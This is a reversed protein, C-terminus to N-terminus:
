SRVTARVSPRGSSARSGSSGPASTPQSPAPEAEPESPPAAPSGGLFDAFNHSKVAEAVALLAGVRGAFHSQWVDALPMLGGGDVYVHAYHLTPLLVDRITDKNLLHAAQSRLVAASQRREREAAQALQAQEPTKAVGLWDPMSQERYMVISDAAADLIAAEVLSWGALVRLAEGAPMVAIMYRDGDITIDAPRRAM